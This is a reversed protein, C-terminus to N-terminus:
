APKLFVCLNLSAVALLPLMAARRRHVAGRRAATIYVADSHRRRPAGPGREGVVQEREPIKQRRLDACSCSVVVAFCVEHPAM